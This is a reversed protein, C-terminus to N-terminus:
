LCTGDGSIMYKQPHWCYLLQYMSDVNSTQATKAFQSNFGSGRACYALTRGPGYLGLGYSVTLSLKYSRIGMKRM